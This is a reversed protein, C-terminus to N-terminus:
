FNIQFQGLHRRVEAMQSSDLEETLLKSLSGNVEGFGCDAWDRVGFKSSLLYWDAKNKISYIVAMIQQAGSGWPDCDTAASILINTKTQAEVDSFTPSQGTQLLQDLADEALNAEEKDERTEGISKIKNYVLVGVGTLAALGVLVIIGQAMLPLQRFKM